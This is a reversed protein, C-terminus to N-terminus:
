DYDLGADYGTDDSQGGEPQEVDGGDENHGENGDALIEDDGQEEDSPSGGGGGFGEIFRPTKFDPHNALWKPDVKDLPIRQGRQGVDPLPKDKAEKWIRVKFQANKGKM